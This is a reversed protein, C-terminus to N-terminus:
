NTRLRRGLSKADRDGNGEELPAFAWLFVQYLGFILVMTRELMTPIPCFLSGLAILLGGLFRYVFDGRYEGIIILALGMLIPFWTIVMNWSDAPLGAVTVSAGQVPTCDGLTIEPGCLHLKSPNNITTNGISVTTANTDIHCHAAATCIPDQHVTVAGSLVANLTPMSTVTISQGGANTVTIGGAVNVSGALTMTQGGSNVVNMTGSNTVTSVLNPWSDIILHQTGSNVVNTTQTGCNNTNPNFALPTTQSAGCQYNLVYDSEQVVVFEFRLHMISSTSASLITFTMTTEVDCLRSGADFTFKSSFIVHDNTLSIDNVQSDTGSATCGVYTRSFTATTGAIGGALIQPGDVNWSWHIPASSVPVPICPYDLIADISGANAGLAVAAVSASAIRQCTGPSPGGGAITTTGANVMPAGMLAVLLIMGLIMLKM